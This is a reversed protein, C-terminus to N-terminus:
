TRLTRYSESGISKSDFHTVLRALREMEEPALTQGRELKIRDKVDDKELHPIIGVVVSNIHQEVDEITGLSTDMAELVFCFVGGILIGILAGVLGKYARSPNPVTTASHAKEVITIDDVKEKQQIEADELSKRIANAQDQKDRATLTLDDLQAALEPQRDVTQQEKQNSDLSAKTSGIVVRLRGALNVLRSTMRTQELKLQQDAARVQPHEETESRLLEEKKNRAELWTVAEKNAEDWMSHAIGDDITLYSQALRDYEGSEQIRNISDLATNLDDLKQKLQSAKDQLDLARNPDRALAYGEQRKFDFLSHQAQNLEETLQDSRKRLFSVTENIKSDRDSRYKDVYAEVLTNALTIAQEATPATARLALIDSGNRQEASVRGRLDDFANQTDDGPKVMKLKLAVSELVPRSSIVMIQTAMNDYPSYQIESMLGAVTTSRSIRVLAESTYVPPPLETLFYTTLGMLTPALIIIWKRRRIVRYIDRLNVDIQAM